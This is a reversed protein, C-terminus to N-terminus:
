SWWEEVQKITKATNVVASQGGLKLLVPTLASLGELAATRTRTALRHLANRWLPYLEGPSLQALMPALTALVRAPYTYIEMALIDSLAEPLLSEPLYPVLDQLVFTHTTENKMSRAIELAKNIVPLQERTPLHQALMALALVQIPVDEINPTLNRSAHLVSQREEESLYRALAALAYLRHVDVNIERATELAKSAISAPIESSLEALVQARDKASSIATAADLAKGLVLAKKDQPLRDIMRVLTYTKTTADEMAFVIDQTKQLLPDPLYPALAVLARVQLMEDNILCIGNFAQEIQSPTLYPALAALDWVQNSLRVGITQLISDLMAQLLTLWEEGSMYPVLAAMADPITSISEMWLGLTRQWDPGLAKVIELAERMLSPPLSPVLSMLRELQIYHSELTRIYDLTTRLIPEQEEEPLHPAFATLAGVLHEIDGISWVIDLAEPLLADPLHPAFRGLVKSRLPIYNITRTIDLADSLLPKPLHPALDTLLKTKTFDEKIARIAELANHTVPIQENRPLHLALATLIEARQSADTIRDVANLAERLLPELLCPALAGLAEALDSTDQLRLIMDLANRLVPEQEEEPLHPALVALAEPWLRVEWDDEMSFQQAWDFADQALSQQEEKPLHPFIAALATAWSHINFVLPLMNKGLDITAKLLKQLLPQWTDPPLHQGIAVQAEVHYGFVNISQATVLAEKLLPAPLLPALTSLVKSQRQADKISKALELAEALIDLKQEPSLSPILPILADFREYEDQISRAAELAKKLTPLRWEPPLLPTLALLTKSRIAPDPIRQAMIKATEMTRSGALILRILLEVPVNNYLTHLSSIALACWVECSLNPAPKGNKIARENREEVAIWAQELDNLYAIGTSDVIMQFKCWEKSEVLAFLPDYSERGGRRLHTSLHRSAYGDHATWRTSLIYHAAISRHCRPLDVKRALYSAFSQHVIRWTERKEGIEEEEYTEQYLFRQWPRLVRNLIEDPDLFQTSDRGNNAQDALWQATVPERAAGLLTIM